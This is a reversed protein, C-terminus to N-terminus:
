TFTSKWLLWELLKLVSIIKDRDRILRQRRFYLLLSLLENLFSYEGLFALSNLFDSIKLNEPIYSEM